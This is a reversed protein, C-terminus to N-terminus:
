LDFATGGAARPSSAWPVDVLLKSLEEPDGLAASQAELEGVKLFRQRLGGRLEFIRIGSHREDPVLRRGIEAYGNPNGLMIYKFFAHGIGGSAVAAADNARETELEHELPQWGMTTGVSDTVIVDLPVRQEGYVTAQLVNAHFHGCVFAVRLGPVGAGTIADLVSRRDEKRWNGWGEDEDVRAMFPPIHTFVVLTNEQTKQAAAEQAIQRMFHRLASGQKRRYGELFDRYAPEHREPCKWGQADPDQYIQSAIYVFHFGPRGRVHFRGWLAPESAHATEGLVVDGPHRFWSPDYLRKYKALTEQTPADDVDHNGPTFFVPINNRKLPMLAQVIKGQQYRELLTANEADLGGTTAEKAHRLDAWADQM